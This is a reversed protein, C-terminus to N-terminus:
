RKCTLQMCFFPQKVKKDTHLMLFSGTEWQPDIFNWRTVVAEAVTSVPSVSMTSYSPPPQWWLFTYSVDCLSILAPHTQVFWQVWCCYLRMYFLATCCNVLDGSLQLCNRLRLPVIVQFTSLLEHSMSVLGQLITLSEKWLNPFVVHIYRQKLSSSSPLHARRTCCTLM